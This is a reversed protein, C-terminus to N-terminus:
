LDREVLHTVVHPLITIPHQMTIHIPGLTVNTRIFIEFTKCRRIHNIILVRVIRLLGIRVVGQDERILIHLQGCTAVIYEHHVLISIHLIHNRLHTKRYHFRHHTDIGFYSGIRIDFEIAPILLQIHIHLGFRQVHAVCIFHFHHHALIISCVVLHSQRLGRKNLGIAQSINILFLQDKFASILKSMKICVRRIISTIVHIHNSIRLPRIM